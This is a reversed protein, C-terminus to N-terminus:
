FLPVIYGYPGICTEPCAVKQVIIKPVFFVIAVINKFFLNANVIVAEM